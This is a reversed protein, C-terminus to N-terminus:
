GAAPAPQGRTRSPRHRGGGAVHKHARLGEDRDLFARVIERVLDAESVDAGYAEKYLRRYLDLDRALPPPLKLELAHPTTVHFPPLAIM